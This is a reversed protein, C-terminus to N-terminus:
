TVAAYEGEGLVLVTGNNIPQQGQAVIEAADAAAM